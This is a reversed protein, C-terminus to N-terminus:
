GTHLTLQRYIRDVVSPWDGDQVQRFLKLSPYWPSKTQKEIWLWYTRYNTLMVLTPVGVTGALHAVSTDVTIVFDLEHMIHATDSFNKLQPRLDTLKGGAVLQDFLEKDSDRIDVQLSYFGVNPTDFLPALTQLPVTRYADYRSKLSGAWCVGVNIRHKAGLLQEIEMLRANDYVLAVPAPITSQVTRFCWALSMFRVWLDFQPWTDRDDGLLTVGELHSLLPRVVSPTWVFVAAGREVMLPLYRAFMINDGLGQEGHVLITKGKLSQEGTWLPVGPDEIRDKKRFEYDRFGQAYDGKVLYCFGRAFRAKDNDPDVSLLVELEAIAEDWRAFQMLILGRNYHVLPDNPVSRLLNDFIQLAEPSKGLEGLAMGRNITIAILENRLLSVSQDLYPMAETYKEQGMLAVAIMHKYNHDGPAHQELARFMQEAMEYQGTRFAEAALAMTDFPNLDVRDNM